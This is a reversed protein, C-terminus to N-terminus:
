TATRKNLRSTIKMRKCKFDECKRLIVNTNNKYEDNIQTEQIFFNRAYEQDYIMEEDEGYISARHIFVELLM